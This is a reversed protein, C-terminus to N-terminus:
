SCVVRARLPVSPLPTVATLAQIPVVLGLLSHLNNAICEVSCTGVGKFVEQRGMLSLGSPELSAHQSLHGDRGRIDRSDSVSGAFDWGSKCTSSAHLPLLSLDSMRKM